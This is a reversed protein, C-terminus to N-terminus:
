GLLRAVLRDCVGEVYERSALAALWAEPIAQVGHLAGALAGTVAATTDTDEGLNIAALVAREYSPERAVCWLSAELCHVVYGSGRIATAPAEIISGDLVRELAEREKEPVSPGVQAAAWAMAQRLPRGATVERLLLSFYACCLQSRPHAHTLGSVEASRRVIEAPPLDRVFLSLPAIRMLSGNGNDREGRCGWEAPPAGAAFREIAARTAIGVDFVAAHPTYAQGKLWSLFRAMMDSPDYGVQTLSDATALLLSSDDSWTGPPQDYTGHGRVGTVPDASRAERSTFEVPVGLADGVVAGLLCGRLRSHLTVEATQGPDGLLAAYAEYVAEDFCVLVVRELATDGALFESIEHVAIACADAIPYGYVGCSIAPFAITRVEHARALELSNRYCSALLAAEDHGGGRWVPGVTHIVYRAPLRYGGTLKAQGTRCGGLTRCEALLEPGAARHIAGDVGGGGLLSTNAANVIADVSLRTIDGRVLELRRESM